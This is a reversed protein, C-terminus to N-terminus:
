CASKPVQMRLPVTRSRPNAMLALPTMRRNLAFVMLHLAFIPAPTKMVASCVSLRRQLTNEDCRPLRDTRGGDSSRLSWQRRLRRWQLIPANAMQGDRAKETEPSVVPVCHPTLRGAVCDADRRCASGLNYDNPDPQPCGGCIDFNQYTAQKFIKAYPWFLSPQFARPQESRFVCEDEILDARLKM